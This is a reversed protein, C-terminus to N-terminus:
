HCIAPGGMGLPSCTMGMACRNAQGMTDCPMGQPIVEVCLPSDMTGACAMAGDCRPEAARCPAGLHTGAARCMANAMGGEMAPQENVCTLGDACSSLFGRTDCPQDAAVSPVCLPTGDAAGESCRLAGDCVPAMSGEQMARCPNGQAGFPITRLTLTFAGSGAMTEANADVVIFLVQGEVANTVYVSSQPAHDYSNNNCAIDTGTAAQSCNARVYLATDFSSGETSIQIAQTGTPVRYSLVTEVGDTMVCGEYPHLNNARGATTGRYVIENGSATGAAVLDIPSDCTGGGNNMSVPVDTGADQTTMPTSSTGGCAISGFMSAMVLTLCSNMKM